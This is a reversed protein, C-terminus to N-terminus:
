AGLKQAVASALQKDANELGTKHNELSTKTQTTLKKRSTLMRKVEKPAPGGLANHSEVFKQPDICNKIDALKVDLTIGASEKATNNLLEPSLMSLSLNKEM